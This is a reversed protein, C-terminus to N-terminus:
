SLLTMSYWIPALICLCQTGSSYSMCHLVIGRFPSGHTNLKMDLKYRQLYLSLNCVLGRHTCKEIFLYCYNCFFSFSLSVILTNSCKAARRIASLTHVRCYGATSSMSCHWRNQFISRACLFCQEKHLSDASWRKSHLFLPLM